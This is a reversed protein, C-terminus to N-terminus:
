GIHWKNAVSNEKKIANTAANLGGTVNELQEETLNENEPTQNIKENETNNNM